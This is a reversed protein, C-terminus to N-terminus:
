SDKKNQIPNIKMEKETNRIALEQVIKATDKQVRDLRNSLNFILIFLFLIAIIFIFFMRNEMQAFGMAINLLNPFVAFFGISFWISIWLIASSIKIKEQKFKLVIRIISIVAVVFLLITFTTIKM